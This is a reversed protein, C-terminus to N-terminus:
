ICSMKCKCVNDCKFKCYYVLYTSNNGSQLVVEAWLLQKGLIVCSTLNLDPTLYLNSECAQTREGKDILSKFKQKLLFNSHFRVHVICKHFFVLIAPTVCYYLYCMIKGQKEVSYSIYKGLFMISYVAKGHNFMVTCVFLTQNNFM